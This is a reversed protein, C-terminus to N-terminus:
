NQEPEAPPTAQAAATKILAALEAREAGTLTQEYVPACQADTLEEARASLEGHGHGDGWPQSWAYFEAYAAGGNLMVADLPDLGLATVAAVHASGRWERMVHLAHAARGAPDSPREAARWGAFLALGIPSVADTVREALEVLRAAGDFSAFAARGQEALAQAYLKAGDRAPHVQLARDWVPRLAAPNFFGLAAAVVDSDVDGLVGCRGALYFALLDAYGHSVGLETTGPALMFGAGTDYVVTKTAQCTQQGTLEGPSTDTM